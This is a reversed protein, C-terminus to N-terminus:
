HEPWRDMRRLAPFARGVWAVVGLTAVGGVLVSNVTGLLKATVGSEFAGIENSSGVFISNVASVRGLMHEPTVVTLLTSRVVVGIMDFCGAAALLLCSLWLTGSLAFGIMSLGYCTIAVLMTRGVHRTIPRRVLAISMLVAGVAPMARLLGLGTPGVALIDKAFIPLLATAGGFLVAFLDLTMAGFLRRESRVFRIGSLLSELMVGDVPARVPSTHRVRFLWWMGVLMLITDLLYALAAGGAAYLMGGLAPGLVASAQWTTTRWAIANPFIARPILESGLAQRAPHLFARAVGSAVIVAYIGAVRWGTPANSLLAIGLLALSCAVLVGMSWLVVRRRDHRDAVHGSWLASVMFPLAEALGILGLALPDGTLDYVQWGVITGQIHISVTLAFLGWIYRRFNPFRLAAYPDARSM